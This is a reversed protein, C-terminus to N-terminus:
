RRCPKHPAPKPHTVHAVFRITDIAVKRVIGAGIFALSVAISKANAGGSVDDLAEADLEGTINSEVSKVFSAVEEANLEVGEAAFVKQIEENTECAAVAALFADNKALEEFKMTNM